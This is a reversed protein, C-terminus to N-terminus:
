PTVGFLSLTSNLFSEEVEEPKQAGKNTEGQHQRNTEEAPNRVIESFVTEAFRLQQAELSFNIAESTNDLTYEFSTICMNNYTRVPGDIKILVDSNLIGEIKDIFDEINTKAPGEQAGPGTYGVRDAVKQATRIASDAQDIRSQVDATIGAVRSIQSQTRSPLYQAVEGVLTEIERISELAPSPKVHVNSINGEINVIVPKNIIHDNVHSGDELYTVPAERTRSINDRVRALTTFGAIGVDGESENKFAGDIYDRILSM